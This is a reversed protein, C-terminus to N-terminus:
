WSLLVLFRLVLLSAMRFRNIHTGVIFYRLEESLGLGFPHLDWVEGSGADESAIHSLVGWISASLIHLKCISDPIYPVVFQIFAVTFWM